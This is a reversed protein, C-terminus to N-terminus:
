WVINSILIKADNSDLDIANLQQMKISFKGWADDKVKVAATKFPIIDDKTLFVFSAGGSTNWLRGAFTPDNEYAFVLDNINDRAEKDCDFTDSKYVFVGYIVSERTNTLEIQKQAFAYEVTESKPSHVLQNNIYKYDSLNPNFGFGEIYFQREGSGIQIDGDQPQEFADSFSKIIYKNSDLRIYYKNM